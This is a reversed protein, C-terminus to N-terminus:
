LTKLYEIIARREIDTLVDTFRHGENGQSYEGTNYIKRNEIQRDSMVPLALNWGLGITRYLVARLQQIITSEM